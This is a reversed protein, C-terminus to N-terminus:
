TVDALATIKIFYSFLIVLLLPSLYYVSKGFNRMIAAQINNTSVRTYNLTQTIFVM